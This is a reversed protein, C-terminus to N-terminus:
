VESAFEGLHSFFCTEELNDKISTNLTVKIYNSRHGEMNGSCVIMYGTAPPGTIATATDTDVTSDSLSSYFM